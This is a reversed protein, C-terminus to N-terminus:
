ENNKSLVILMQKVRTTVRRFLLLISILIAILSTLDLILKLTTEKFLVSIRHEGPPIELHIQGFPIGPKIALPNGDIFGYWGPFNYKNINIVVPTKSQINVNVALDNVQEWSKIAPNKELLPYNRNPRIKTDLPLKLSEESIEYYEKQVVPVPIYRKLYYEDTRGLFDHPKFININFIITLFLLVISLFSSYKLNSFPILFIPIIFTVIVLFRWPFQFYALLPLNQWVIASRFNMMFMAVLFSILAWILIMKQEKTCKKLYIVTFFIGFVLVFWNTIGLFFSMGDYPGAVSAGYGWYPKILQVLTPFHDIFNFVTDYQLLNKDILVPLWYYISAIIALFFMTTLKLINNLKKKCILVFSLSLILLFPFFMYTTINHTLILALLSLSGVGVWQWSSYKIAKIVSLTLLPLFVFALSEGLAGRNYVDNSRYPTYVYILSGVFSLVQNCFEKLFLYMTIASFVLSILFVLKISDVLSFSLLHFIEGIYFPLSYEFNFLPYGFGFSLDPVFRPPIQGIRLIKDMEFLWAIHTDDSAGYFGPVLLAWFSPLTFIALIVFWYKSFLLKIKKLDLPKEM